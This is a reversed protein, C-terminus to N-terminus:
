ITFRTFFSILLKQQPQHRLLIFYILVSYCSRPFFKLSPYKFSPILTSLYPIPHKPDRSGPILLGTSLLRYLKGQPLDPPSSRELAQSTFPSPSSTSSFSPPESITKKLFIGSLDTNDLHVSQEDVLGDVRGGVESLRNNDKWNAYCGGPGQELGRASKWGKWM